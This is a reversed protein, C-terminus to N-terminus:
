YSPIKSSVTSSVRLSTHHLPIPLAYTTHSKRPAEPSEPCTYADCADVQIATLHQSGCTSPLVTSSQTCKSARLRSRLMFKMYVHPLPFRLTSPLATCEGAALSYLHLALLLALTIHQAHLRVVMRGRLSTLLCAAICAPVRTSLCPPLCTRLCTPLYIPPCAHVCAPLYAAPCTPPCAPLYASLCAPVCARLCAPLCTPLRSPQRAPLCASLCSRLCTPPRHAHLCALMVPM